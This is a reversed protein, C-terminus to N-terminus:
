LGYKKLRRWLTTKSLGLDRAVAAKNGSNRILCDLIQKKEQEALTCKPLSEMREALPFETVPLSKEGAEAEIQLFEPEAELLSFIEQEDVFEAEAMVILREMINRLQRINGPYDYSCLLEQAQPSFRLKRQYEKLIRQVLAFIDEKRERLPPLQLPLVALRYFLDERFKKTKVQRALNKNTAAIVRVDVPITKTDGIRTVEREQLVRLLKVQVQMSIEGIEDLFITGRHAREFLGEKGETRAGTFAGKVYGFLESELINEPIAACNVAVFAEKARLSYNHISQAFVEKGTGSEGTILVTADSAAYKKARFIASQVAPSEGLIDSFHMKAQHAKVVLTRRIEKESSFVMDLSRVNVVIAQFHRDIFIPILDLSFKVHEFEEIHDHISSGKLLQEWLAQNAFCYAIFEQIGSPLLKKALGNVFLVQQDETVAIIGSNTSQLIEHFILQNRQREIDVRIFHLAENLVAEIASEDVETGVCHLGWKEAAARTTNGGILVSIGHKKLDAVIADISEVNQIRPIVLPLKSIERFRIATERALDFGLLAIKDGYKLATQYSYFVDEYTYSVNFVPITLEQRLLSVNRGRSIIFKIGDAVLKKGLQSTEAGTAIYIPVLLKRKKLLKKVSKAFSQSPSIIALKDDIRAIKEM